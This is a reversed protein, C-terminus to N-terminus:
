NLDFRIWNSHVPSDPGPAVISSEYLESCSCTSRRPGKYVAQTWSVADDDNSTMIMM